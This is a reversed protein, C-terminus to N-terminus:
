AQKLVANGSRGKLPLIASIRGKENDEAKAKQFGQKQRGTFTGVSHRFKVRQSLNEGEKAGCSTQRTLIFLEGSMPQSFFNTLFSFLWQPPPSTYFSHNKTRGRSYQVFSVSQPATM